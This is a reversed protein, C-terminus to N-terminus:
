QQELEGVKDRLADIALDVADIHTNHGLVAFRIVFTDNIKTTSLFVRGDERLREVLKHNFANPDGSKPVYRFTVISLDPAPGVEFGDVRQIEEYFYEALLLKEELAARFPALGFLKVPLWLRLGRFPRSLEPSIDCASLDEGLTNDTDQMYAGRIRFADRLTGGDRVLVAGTGFPLFFGKHPDLVLSDAASLGPMRRKGEECIAFAGGYAADVHMWMKERNAIDAIAPLPDVSGMDTTGATAVILWPHLGANRDAEIQQHLAAADMRHAVDQGVTRFICEGLGAIAIAKVVSHHTLSTLYVVTRPVDVSKIAHAERAAVVASLGAISGGSTLDGAATPPYDVIDALWRVLMREFRAVGPASFQVGAYRNTVSALFDGLASTYLGGSPIYALFRSSGIHAGSTDVHERLLALASDMDGPAEEFLLKEAGARTGKDPMYAPQDELTEIFTEGYRVIADLQEARQAANLELQEATERLDAIRKRLQVATDM